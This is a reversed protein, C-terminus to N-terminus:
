PRNADARRRLFTGWTDLVFGVLAAGGIGTVFGAFGHISEESAPGMFPRFLSGAIPTGYLACLTGVILTRLGQIWSEQLTITRVLSGAAGAIAEQGGTSRLWNWVERAASTTPEDM